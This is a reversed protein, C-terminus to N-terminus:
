TFTMGVALSLSIRYASEHKAISLMGSGEHLHYIGEQTSPRIRPNYEGGPGLLNDLWEDVSMNVM